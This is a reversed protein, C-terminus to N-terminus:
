DDIRARSKRATNIKCIHCDRRPNLRNLRKYIKTNEKSFPHGHICHTKRSEKHRKRKVADRQNDTTNGLYLHSGRVCTPNDCRHLVQMGKPILEKQIQFGARHARM